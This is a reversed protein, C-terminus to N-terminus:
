RGATAYLLRRAADLSLRSLDGRLYAYMNGRDVRAREAVAYASEGSEELASLTKKRWAKKLRERSAKDHKPHDFADIVQYYRKDLVDYNDRLFGEADGPYGASLKMVDSYLESAPVDDRSKPGSFYGERPPDPESFMSALLDVKGMELACLFVYERSRSNEPFRSRRYLKRLSTTRPGGDHMLRNAESLLFGRMTQRPNLRM